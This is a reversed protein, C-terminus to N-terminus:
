PVQRQAPGSALRIEVGMAKKADTSVAPLFSVFHHGTRSKALRPRFEYGLFVFSTVEHDDRRDADQCYVIRTKDPHLQLGVQELRGAIAGRVQRAQQESDCHRFAKLRLHDTETLSVHQPV